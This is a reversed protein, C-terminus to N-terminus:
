SFLDIKTLQLVNVARQIIKLKNQKENRIQNRNLIRYVKLPILMIQLNFHYTVLTV